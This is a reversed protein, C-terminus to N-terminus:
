LPLMLIEIGVEEMFDEIEEIMDEDDPFHYWVIAIDAGKKEFDSLMGFLQSLCRSSSTNFYTLKIKLEISGNPNEEFYNRFWEFIPNYFKQTDELYSEGSIECVGTSFDLNINPVYFTGKQGEVILNDM